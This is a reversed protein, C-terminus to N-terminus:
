EGHRDTFELRAATAKRVAAAEELSAFSGLYYTKYNLCINAIWASGNWYVGTVGSTNNASKSQNRCNIVQPVDRLNDLRNNLGNGDKHEVQYVPWSGYHIFWVLNHVYYRHGLIKCERYQKIQKNGRSCVNGVVAGAKTGKSPVIWTLEGTEPNYSVTAKLLAQYEEDPTM